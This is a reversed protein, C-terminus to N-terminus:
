PACTKTDTGVPQTERLRRPTALQALKQWLCYALSSVSQTGTDVVLDAIERYLPDREKYLETLKALPDAIQLM